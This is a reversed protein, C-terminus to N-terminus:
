PRTMLRAELSSAIVVVLGGTVPRRWDAAKM